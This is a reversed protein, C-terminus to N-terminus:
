YAVVTLCNFGGNSCHTEFFVPSRRNIHCLKVLECRESIIKPM